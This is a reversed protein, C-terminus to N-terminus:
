PRAVSEPDAPVALHSPLFAGRSRLTDALLARGRGPRDPETSQSRWVREHYRRSATRSGLRLTLEYDGPPLRPPVMVFQGLQNAVARDHPEGNRLLEVTAGPAATGAIVADGARGVLAIDFVPIIEDGSDPSPPPVALAPAMALADSGADGVGATPPAVATATTADRTEVPPQRERPFSSVIAAGCAATLALFPIAIRGISIPTMTPL